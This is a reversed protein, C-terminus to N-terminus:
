ELSLSSGTRMHGFQEPCLNEPITKHIFVKQHQSADGATLFEQQKQTEIKMLLDEKPNLHWSSEEEGLAGLRHRTSKAEAM